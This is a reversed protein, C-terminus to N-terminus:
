LAAGQLFSQAAQQFVNFQCLASHDHGAFAAEVGEFLARLYVEGTVRHRFLEFTLMAGYPPIVRPVQLQLANVLAVLSNDHASFLSLKHKTQGQLCLRTTLTEMLAHVFSHGCVEAVSTLYSYIRQVGARFSARCFDMNGYLHHWLWADYDCIQAFLQQDLGEPFDLGHAERCILVERVACLYWALINDVVLHAEIQLM